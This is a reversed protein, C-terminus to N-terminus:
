IEKKIKGGLVKNTKLEEPNGKYLITGGFNVKADLMENVFVRVVAGSSSVVNTEISELDYGKYIGGTNAEISQNQTSGNVNVIGGSVTKITLYKTQIESEIRAGEQVKLELHQQKILQNSFILSGENADIIDIAKSYHLVLIVDDDKFGDPFKLSIKLTGNKNKISVQDSKPGSIEVKSVEGKILEVKLGSYVKLTSFDGLKTVQTKQSFAVSCTLLLLLTIKKM